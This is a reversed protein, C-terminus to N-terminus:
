KKVYLHGLAEPKVVKYGFVQLSRLLDGFSNPNRLTENETMQSAFTLAVKHGFICNFATSGGGDATTDINNSRFVKMTDIQGVLGNRIVSTADGTMSADKLDSKKLLGVAWSPLVIYRDDDTADQEDLVVGCDVIVELINTKTLQLPTGAVGLNIDGSTVGASAGANSAHVDTYIDALIDKDIDIQLQKSAHAAWKEVYDLDSQRKDVSDIAIAWAKGKDILLDVITPDLNEYNLQQGKVYSTITPSPLERITVKDGQNKIMGEYDTNAIAGFVTSKYFFELLKMAYLNPIYKASLQAIGSSVPFGPHSM